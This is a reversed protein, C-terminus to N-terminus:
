EDDYMMPMADQDGGDFVTQLKDLHDEALSLIEQLHDDILAPQNDAHHDPRRRTREHKELIGSVNATSSGVSGMFPSFDHRRKRTLVGFDKEDRGLAQSVFASKSVIAAGRENPKPTGRARTTRMTTDM